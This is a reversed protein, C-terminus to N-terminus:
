IWPRNEPDMGIAFIGNSLLHNQNDYVEYDENTHTDYRIIGQGTGMWLHRGQSTLVKINRTNLDFTQTKLIHPYPEASTKEPISFANSTDVPIFSAVAIFIFIIARAKNIFNFPQM